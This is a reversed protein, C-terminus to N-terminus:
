PTTTVEGTSENYYSATIEGTTANYAWGVNASPEAACDSEGNVPNIPATKLYGGDILIGFDSGKTTDTPAANMQNLTPYSGNRAKYLELQNQIVSLQSALNGGKADDAATAFQPVVVAALIGLVVVVILVEVLTFGGRVSQRIAM